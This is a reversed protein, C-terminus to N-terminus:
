ARIKIQFYKCTMWKKDASTNSKDLSMQMSTDKDMQMEDHNHEASAASQEKILKMGCKPCNGPKAAHIEPHM